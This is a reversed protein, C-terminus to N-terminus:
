REALRPVGALKAEAEDVRPQLSRTVSIVPAIGALLSGSACQGLSSLFTENPVLIDLLINTDIATIM